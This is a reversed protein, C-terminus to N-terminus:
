SKGTERALLRKRGKQADFLLEVQFQRGFMDNLLHQVEPVLLERIRGVEAGSLIRPQDLSIRSQLELESLEKLYSNLVVLRDENTVEIVGRFGIFAVACGILLLALALLWKKRTLFM